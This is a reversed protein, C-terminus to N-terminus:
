AWHCYCLSPMTANGHCCKLYKYKQYCRHLDVVCPSCMTSNGNCCHKTWCCYYSPVTALLIFKSYFRESPTFNYWVTLNAIHVVLMSISDCCVLYWCSNWILAMFCYFSVTWSFLWIRSTISFMWSRKVALKVTRAHYIYIIGDYGRQIM